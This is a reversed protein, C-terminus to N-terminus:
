GQPQADIDLPSTAGGPELCVVSLAGQQEANRGDLLPLSGNPAVTCFPAYFNRGEGSATNFGTYLLDLNGRNIIM